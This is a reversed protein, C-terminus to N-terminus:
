LELDWRCQSIILRINVETTGLCAMVEHDSVLIM